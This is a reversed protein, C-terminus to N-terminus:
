NVKYIEIDKNSFVEEYDASSLDPTKDIKQTVMVYEVGLERALDARDENEPDFLMKNKWIMDVRTEVETDDFSYGSGELYYNRVSYAAYMFHCHHWRNEVSYDKPGQSMYMQTAILTDEPTNSKLWEMAEYEDSTLTTYKNYKSAPDAHRIDDKLNDRFTLGLATTTLIMMAFFWVASVKMLASMAKSSIDEKDEFFRFVILPAFVLTAVGFYVQSHGSYRLIMMAAFGVFVSAYITVVAFDYDKKGSVVLVLERLYGIIFPVLYATFFVVAFLAFIVALRAPVPLGMGKLAATLGSKWWCVGIINGLSFISEGGVGNTGNLSLLFAYVVYFGACPLLTVPLTRKVPIRRLILCLLFTGTLGGAIVLGLPAKIGTLLMTFLTVLALASYRKRRSDAKFYADLVIVCAIMCAASFGAYNENIFLMRFMYSQSISRGIFLDALIFSLAYVGAREPRRSFSRFMAYMSCSMLAVTLYPTCSMVLFDPSMGFLMVPVALLIQSFIHYHVLRGSVLPDVLPYGHSLSGILSMQYAKDLSVHINQAYGPALYQFQTFSFVYLMLLAIFIFFAAPIDTFRVKNILVTDWRHSVAMVIYAASCLPGAAYLLIMPFGCLQTVFYLFVTLSWGAFFSCLLDASVHGFDLKTLKVLLLGPLLVYFAIYAIFLLLSPVSAHYVFISVLVVAAAAITGSIRAINAM